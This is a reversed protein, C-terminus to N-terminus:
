YDWCVTEGKGHQNYTSAGVTHVKSKGCDYDVTIYRYTVHGDQESWKDTIIGCDCNNCSYLGVLALSVLLRLINKKM